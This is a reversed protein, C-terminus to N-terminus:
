LLTSSKTLSSLYIQHNIKIWDMLHFIEIPDMIQNISEKKNNEINKNANNLLNKQNQFNNKNKDSPWKDYHTNMENLSYKPISIRRLTPEYTAQTTTLINQAIKIHIKSPSDNHSMNLHDVEEEILHLNSLKVQRLEM